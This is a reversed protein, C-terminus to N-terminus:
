LVPQNQNQGRLSVWKEKQQLQNCSSIIKSLNKWIDFKCKHNCIHNSCNCILNCICGGYKQLKKQFITNKCNTIFFHYYKQLFGKLSLYKHSFGMFKLRSSPGLLSKPFSGRALKSPSGARDPWIWYTSAFSLTKQIVTCVQFSNQSTVSTKVM